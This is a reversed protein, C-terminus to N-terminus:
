KANELVKPLVQDRRAGQKLNFLNWFIFCVGIIYILILFSFWLRHLRPIYSVQGIAVGEALKQMLIPKCKGCYRMGNHVIMDRVDCKSNCEACHASGLPEILRVFTEVDAPPFYCYDTGWSIRFHRLATLTPTMERAPFRPAIWGQVVVERRSVERIDAIQDWPLFKPKGFSRVFQIGSQSVLLSRVMSASWVLSITLLILSAVLCAIIFECGFAMALFFGIISPVIFFPVFQLPVVLFLGIVVDTVDRPMVRAKVKIDTINV